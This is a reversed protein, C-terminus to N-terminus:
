VYKPGIDILPMSKLTYREKSAVKLEKFTRYTYICIYKNM